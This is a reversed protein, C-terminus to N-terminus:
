AALTAAVVGKWIMEARTNQKVTYPMAPRLGPARKMQSFPTTLVSRDRMATCTLVTTM